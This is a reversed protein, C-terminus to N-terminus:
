NSAKASYRIGVLKDGLEAHIPTDGQMYLYGMSNSKIIGEKLGALVIKRVLAYMEITKAEQSDLDVWRDIVVKSM